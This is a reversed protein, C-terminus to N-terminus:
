TSTQGMAEAASYGFMRAAGENWLRIAGDPDTVVIAEASEARGGSCAVGRDPDNSSSERM